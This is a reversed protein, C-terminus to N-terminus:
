RCETSVQLMHLSSFCPFFLYIVNSFMSDCFTLCRSIVSVNLRNKNVLWKLEPSFSSFVFQWMNFVLDTQLKAKLREFRNEYLQEIWVYNFYFLIHCFVINFCLGSTNTSTQLYKSPSVNEVAKAGYQLVCQIQFPFIFLPYLPSKWSKFYKSSTRKWVPWGPHM